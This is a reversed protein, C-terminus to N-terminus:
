QERRRAAEIIEILLAKAIDKQDRGIASISVERQAHRVTVSYPSARWKGAYIGGRYAFALVQFTQADMAAVIGLDDLPLQVARGSPPTPARRM